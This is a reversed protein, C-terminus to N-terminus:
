QYLSPKGDARTRFRKYGWQYQEPNERVTQEIARNMATASEAIDKSYINEGVANYRIVYGKGRALRRASVLIVAAGTKQALRPILKMTNAEHGFFPVFIGGDEGPDQDPLIGVIEHRSLAAFLSKVGRTNTPVLTAGTRERATKIMEEISQLRPPRYLSTVTQTASIYLGTIEWAGLHPTMIITGKQRALADNFIHENEIGVVKGLIRAPRWRWLPGMETASKGMEILSAKAIRHRQREDLEPLCLSLNIYTNRRTRNPLVYFMWGIAHGLAHNLPLPLLAFFSLLLRALYYRMPKNGNTMPSKLTQIIPIWYPM